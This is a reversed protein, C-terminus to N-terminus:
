LNALTKKWTEPVDTKLQKGMDFPVLRCRSIAVIKDHKKSRVTLHCHIKQAELKEVDLTVIVTDPFTVPFIYKCEQWALIPIVGEFGAHGENMKEFMAIRASEIWKLYVTNNVHQAADMDGWQVFIEITIFSNQNGGM